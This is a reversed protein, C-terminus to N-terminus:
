SFINIISKISSKVLLFYPKPLLRVINMSQSGNHRNNLIIKLKKVLSFRWWNHRIQQNSRDNNIKEEDLLIRSTKGYKKNLRLILDCRNAQSLAFKEIALEEKEIIKYSAKKKKNTNTLSGENERYSILSKDIITIEKDLINLLISLLGDESLIYDDKSLELYDFLRKDYASTAGHIIKIDYKNYKFYQRLPYKSSNIISLTQDRELIEGKENIKNFKSCLGWSGSLLWENVLVETRDIHSIDDGAALILLSGNAEKAVENVHLLTGSNTTTKRAIVSHPGNYTNCLENIIEFTKDTSCDDSIIIELPTYTQRFAAIVAEKIYKEQNYSFIAFTVLPKKNNM